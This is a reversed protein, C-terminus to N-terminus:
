PRPPFSTVGEGPRGVYLRGDPFVVQWSEFREHSEVELEHGGVFLLTLVGLRSATAGRVIQRLVPLAAAIEVVSTPDIGVVEDGRRLTFPTEIVIEPGSGLRLLFRYDLVLQSVVEGEFPFIWGTSQEIVAAERAMVVDHRTGPGRVSRGIM